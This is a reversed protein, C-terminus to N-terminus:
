RAPRTPPGGFRLEEPIMSLAKSVAQRSIGLERGIDAQSRGTALRLVIQKKRYTMRAYIIKRALERLDAKETLDVSVAAVATDAYLQNEPLPSALPAGQRRAAALSLLGLEEKFKGASRRSRQYAPNWRGDAQKPKHEPCYHGSLRYKQSSYSDDGEPWYGSALHASLESPAGCFRCLGHARQTNVRADCKGRISRRTRKAACEDAFAYLTELTAIFAGGEIDTKELRVFRRLLERQLAAMASFGVRSALGGFGQGVNMGAIYSKCEDPCGSLMKDIAPDVVQQVLRSLRYQTSRESYRGWRRMVQLVAVSVLENCGSFVIRSLDNQM